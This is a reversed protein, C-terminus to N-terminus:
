FTLLQDLHNRLYELNTVIGEGSSDEGEITTKYGRTNKYQFDYRSSGDENRNKIILGTNVWSPFLLGDETEALGRKGPRNPSLGAGLM